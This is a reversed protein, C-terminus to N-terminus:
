SIYEFALILCIKGVRNKRQGRKSEKMKHVKYLQLVLSQYTISFLLKDDKLFYFEM